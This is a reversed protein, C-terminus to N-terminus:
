WAPHSYCVCTTAEAGPSSALSCARRYGPRARLAAIWDGEGAQVFGASESMTALPSRNAEEIWALLAGKEKEM